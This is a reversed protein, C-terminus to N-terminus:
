TVLLWEENFLFGGKFLLVVIDICGLFVLTYLIRQLIISGGTLLGALNFNFIGVIGLIFCGILCLIFSIKDIINLKYM